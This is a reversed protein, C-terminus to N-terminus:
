GAEPPPVSYRQMADRGTDSSVLDLTWPGTNVEGDKGFGTWQGKM